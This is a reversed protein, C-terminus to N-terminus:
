ETNMSVVYILEFKLKVLTERDFTELKDCLMPPCCASSRLMLYVLWEIQVMLITM